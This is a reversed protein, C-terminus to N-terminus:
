PCQWILNLEFYLLHFGLPKWLYWRNHVLGLYQQLYHLFVELLMNLSLKVQLNIETDLNVQFLNESFSFISTTCFWYQKMKKCSDIKSSMRFVFRLPVKRTLWAAALLMNVEFRLSPEIIFMELTDPIDLNNM